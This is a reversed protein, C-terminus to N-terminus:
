QTEKELYDLWQKVLPLDPGKTMLYRGAYGRALQLDDARTRVVAGARHINFLWQLTLFLSREDTPHDSVFREMSRVADGGNGLTAYLLALPRAFRTDAPWREVAAELTSRAEAFLRSRMLTGGLWEYVDPLDSSRALAAKWANAAEADYGAAAFCAALYALSAGSEGDQRTARRFSTEADAYEGKQLHAVGDDFAPKADATVRDRFLALTSPRLADDRRFPSSLDKSEVPLAVSSAFAPATSVPPTASTHAPAPAGLEFARSLTAVPTGNRTVIARLRYAGPPLSQVLMMQSFVARADGALRGPADATLLAPSRDDAAVELEVKLSAVDGGYAELYGHVSGFGVRDGITPQSLNGPPVPGGAMLETLKFPGANVLAAHVPLELSGLRDGDAAAIRVTYDGPEVSAGAVFALSSAVGAAIPTLRTESLQGDVARGQRDLVAYAVSMRQPATYGSGIDVHILLQIKSPDPGLLSFAIGRLPLNSLLLPAGLAAAVAERPSRPAAVAEGTALTTPRARVTAGRRTVDVAIPHPKGDRDGATPDVGLLYYGAIESTIRDFIGTGTGAVNFLTGRAASSLAQLGERMQQRDEVPANSIAGQSIDFTDEELRVTYITTRAAAALSAIETVRTIGDRDPDMFFGQSLLVLSKPADVGKLATLLNRLAQLAMDGERRANQVREAAETQIQGICFELVRPDKPCDRAVLRALTTNGGREIALATYLGMLESGILPVVTRQQGPMRAVAAKAQDRNSTFSISPAGNGFGVVAIRDSPSLRDIFTNLTEQLPRVGTFPINPQDIAIVILRGNAAQENSSYGEPVRVAAAAARQGTMPIWEATIVRRPQGDIKVTFDAATLDRLQQGRGDVVTVDIPIVDVTAQFRPQQAEGLLSTM